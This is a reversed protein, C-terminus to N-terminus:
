LPTSFLSIYVGEGIDCSNMAYGICPRVFKFDGSLFDRYSVPEVSLVSNTALDDDDLSIFDGAYLRNASKYVAMNMDSLPNAGVGKLGKPISM